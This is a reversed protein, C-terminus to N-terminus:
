SPQKKSPPTTPGFRLPSIQVEGTALSGRSATRTLMTWFCIPGAGGTFGWRGEYSPSLAAFGM